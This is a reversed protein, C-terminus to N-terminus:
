QPAGELRRIRDAMVIAATSGARLHGLVFEPEAKAGAADVLQQVWAVAGGPPNADNSAPRSLRAARVLRVVHPVGFRVVNLAALCAIGVVGWFTLANM